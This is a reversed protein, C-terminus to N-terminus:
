GITKGTLYEAVARREPGALGAGQAQMVGSTLAAVVSEPSMRAITSRQPMRDANSQEHCTACVRRYIEAGNPAQCMGPVAAALMSLWGMGVNVIKMVTRKSHGQRDM